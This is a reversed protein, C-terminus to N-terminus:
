AADRSQGGQIEGQVQGQVPGQAKGQNNFQKIREPLGEGIVNRDGKVHIGSKIKIHVQKAKGGQQSVHQMADAVATRSHPPSSVLNGNGLARIESNVEIRYTSMPASQDDSEAESPPTNADMTARPSALIHTIKLCQEVHHHSTHSAEGYPPPAVNYSRVQQEYVYHPVNYLQQPAGCNQNSANGPQGPYPHM